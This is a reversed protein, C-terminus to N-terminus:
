PRIRLALGTLLALVVVTLVLSATEIFWAGGGLVLLRHPRSSNKRM